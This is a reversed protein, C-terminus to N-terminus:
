PGPFDHNVTVTATAGSETTYDFTFITQPSQVTYSFSGDPNVNLFSVPGNQVLNVNGFGVVTTCTDNQLVGPAPVSGNGENTEPFFVDDVAECSTQAHAPLAVADVVPKRWAPPLSAGAALFGSGVTISKLLRRRSSVKKENTTM